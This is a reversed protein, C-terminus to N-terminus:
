KELEPFRFGFLDNAPLKTKYKLKSMKKGRAYRLNCMARMKASKLLAFNARKILKSRPHCVFSIAASKM